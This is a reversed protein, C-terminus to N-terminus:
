DHWDSEDEFIYKTNFPISFKKLLEMYEAKFSRERHHKEQDQIYRIVNDIQSRSYSFAGFGTQWSFKGQVWNNKNIFATSNNKIDRVLDSLAAKPNLGIFIHIHDKVSNIALLKHGKNAIIGSIYKHLSERFDDRILAMRGNVAFIIHIYLQTYTNAM